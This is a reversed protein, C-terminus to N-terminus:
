RPRRPAGAASIEREARLAHASLTYRVDGRVTATTLICVILVYDGLKWELTDRRAASAASVGMQGM